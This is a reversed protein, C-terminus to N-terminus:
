PATVRRDDPWRWRTPDCLDAAWGFIVQPRALFVAGTAGDAGAFGEATVDAEYRYKTALGQVYRRLSPRDTVRDAVGEIIVVDDGDGLHVSVAPNALLNRLAVPSGTSCLLGRPTWIGWVPRSHPRGTPQATALWYTRAQVLRAEAWAWPLLRGPPAPMGFLRPAEPQPM